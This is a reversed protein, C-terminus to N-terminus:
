QRTKSDEPQRPALGEQERKTGAALLAEIIPVCDNLVPETRLRALNRRDVPTLPRGPETYATLTARDMQHAHLPGPLTRRLHALIAFGGYDLDGWHYCPLTPRAQQLRRLLERRARNPFGGLYLVIGEQPFAAIYDYFSTRNEVTLLYRGSASEIALDAIMAVPLGLDPQFTGVDVRTGAARLVLPGHLYVHGPNLRLGVATWFRDAGLGALDPRAAVLLRALPRRLIALRKSDGLVRASFDREAVEDDLHDLAVFARLLEVNRAPDAPDFPLPSQGAQLAARATDLVAAAAPTCNQAADALAAGLAAQQDGAPTRGLHAYVAPVAAPQLTVRELLNDQEGRVWRLQVWGQAAWAALDRNIAQRLAPDRDDRYGAIREVGISVARATPDARREWSDLLRALVQEGAHGSM